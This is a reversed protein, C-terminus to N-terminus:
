CMNSQNKDLSAHVRIGKYVNGVKAVERRM